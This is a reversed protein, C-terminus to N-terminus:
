FQTTLEERSCGILDLLEEFSGECVVVAFTIPLGDNIVLLRHRYNKGYDLAHIKRGHYEKPPISLPTDLDVGCEIKYKAETLNTILNILKMKLVDESSAISLHAPAFEDDEIGIHWKCLHCGDYRPCKTPGTNLAVLREWAQELDLGQFEGAEENKMLSTDGEEILLALRGEVVEYWAQATGYDSGAEIGIISGDKLAEFQEQNLRM